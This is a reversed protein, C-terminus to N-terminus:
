LYVTHVNLHAAHKHAFASAFAVTFNFCLGVRIYININIFLVLIHPQCFCVQVNSDNSDNSDHHFVIGGNPHLQM